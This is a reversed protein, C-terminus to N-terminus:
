PFVTQVSALRADEDHAAGISQDKYFHFGTPRVFVELRKLGLKILPGLFGIGDDVLCIKFLHEMDYPHYNGGRRFDDRHQDSIEDATETGRQILQSPSKGVDRGNSFEALPLLPLNLERDELDHIVGVFIPAAQKWGCHCIGDVLKLRVESSIGVPIIGEPLQIFEPRQVFVSGNRHTGIGCLYTKRHVSPLPKEAATIVVNYHREGQGQCPATIHVEIWGDGDFYKEALSVPGELNRPASEALYVVKDSIVYDWSEHSEKLLGWIGISQM